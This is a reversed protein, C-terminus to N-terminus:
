NDPTYFLFGMIISRLDHGDRCFIATPIKSPGSGKVTGFEDKKPRHKQSQKLCDLNHSFTVCTKGTPRWNFMQEILQGAWTVHNFLQWPLIM